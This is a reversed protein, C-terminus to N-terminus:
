IYASMINHFIIDLSRLNTLHKLCASTQPTTFIEDANEDGNWDEFSCGNIDLTHVNTLYKLGEYSILICSSLTLTHCNNLYKLGKNTVKKCCHLNLTHCNGIRSLGDDTIDKYCYHYNLSLQKNTNLIITNLVNYFQLDEYYRLSFQKNLRWYFYKKKYENYKMMSNLVNNIDCKDLLGQLEQIIFEVFYM